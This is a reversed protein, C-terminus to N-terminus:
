MAVEQTVKPQDWSRIANCLSWQPIATKQASFGPLLRCQLFMLFDFFYCSIVVFRLAEWLWGLLHKAWMASVPHWLGFDFLQMWQWSIDVTNKWVGSKRMASESCRQPQFGQGLEWTELRSCLVRLWTLDLFDIGAAVTSENSNKAYIRTMAVSGRAPWLNFGGDLKLLWNLLFPPNGCSVLSSQAPGIWCSFVLFFFFRYSFILFVHRDCLKWVEAKAEAVTGRFGPRGYFFGDQCMPPMTSMANSFGWQVDRTVTATRDHKIM